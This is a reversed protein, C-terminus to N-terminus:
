ILLKKRHTAPLPKTQLLCCAPASCFPAMILSPCRYEFIYRNFRGWYLTKQLFFNLLTIVFQNSSAIFVSLFGKTPERKQPLYCSAETLQLPYNPVKVTLSQTSYLTDSYIHITHQYVKKREWTLRNGLKKEEFPILANIPLLLSVCQTRWERFSYWLSSRSKCQITNHRIGTCFHKLIYRRAAEVNYKGVNELESRHGFKKFQTIFGSYIL